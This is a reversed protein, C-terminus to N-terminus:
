FYYTLLVDSNNWDSTSRKIQMLPPKDTTSILYYNNVLYNNLQQAGQIDIMSQFALKRKM